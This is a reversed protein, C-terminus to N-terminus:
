RAPVCKGTIGCNEQNNKNIYGVVTSSKSYHKSIGQQSIRNSVKHVHGKFKKIKHISPIRKSPMVKIDESCLMAVSMYVM